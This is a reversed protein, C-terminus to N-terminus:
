GVFRVLWLSIAPFALLLLLRLGDAALFILVRRYTAAM